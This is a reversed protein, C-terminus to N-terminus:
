LPLHRALELPLAPRLGKLATQLLPAGQSQQWWPAEHMPTWGAVLAVALLLVLGRLAGFLAGLARDAPRLGVAEVLKKLLWALLGCAFIAGVFVVAFGAVHRWSAGAEGMPLLAGVDGAFWQAAFFAVVWGALSLLEFVLGRWAGILLSALLVTLFIWDLAAM